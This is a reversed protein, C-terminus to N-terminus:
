NQSFLKQVQKKYIVIKSQVNCDLAIIPKLSILHLVKCNLKSKGQVKFYSCVMCSVM